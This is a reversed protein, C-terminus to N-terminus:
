RKLFTKLPLATNRADSLSRMHPLAAKKFFEVISEFQLKLYNPM